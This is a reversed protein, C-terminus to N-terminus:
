VINGILNAITAIYIISSKITSVTIRMGIPIYLLEM